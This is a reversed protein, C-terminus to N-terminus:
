FFNLLFGLTILILGIKTLTEEKGILKLVKIDIRHEKRVKRHVRLVALGIMLTGIFELTLALLSIVELM